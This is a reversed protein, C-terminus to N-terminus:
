GGRSFDALHWSTWLRCVAARSKEDLGGKTPVPLRRHHSQLAPLREEAPPRFQARATPTAFTLRKEFTTCRFSTLCDLNGKRPDWARRGREAVAGGKEPAGLESHAGGPQLGPLAQPGAAPKKPRPRSVCSKRRALRSLARAAMKITREPVANQLDRTGSLKRTDGEGKQDPDSRLLRSESVPHEVVLSCLHEVLALM